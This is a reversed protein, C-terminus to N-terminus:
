RTLIARQTQRLVDRSNYRRDIVAAKKSLIWAFPPGGSCSKKTKAAGDRGHEATSVARTNWGDSLKKASSM